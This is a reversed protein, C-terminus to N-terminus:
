RKWINRVTNILSSIAYNVFLFVDCALILYKMGFLINKTISNNFNIYTFFWNLLIELIVAAMGIIIAIISIVIIHICFEYVIAFSRGLYEKQDKSLM